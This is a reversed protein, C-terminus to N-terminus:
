AASDARHPHTYTMATQVFSNSQTSVLCIQGVVPSLDHQPVISASAVGLYAPKMSKRRNRTMLLAHRRQSHRRVMSQLGPRTLIYRQHVLGYLLEASAEVISVDPIRHTDETAITLQVSSSSHTSISSVLSSMSFWKWPRKGSPFWPVSVQLISIM